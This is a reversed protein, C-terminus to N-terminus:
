RTGLFPRSLLRLSLAVHRERVSGLRDGVALDVEVRDAILAHRLGLQFSAAGREEDYVEALLWSSDGLRAEMGLGWTIGGAGSAHMRQWGLNAHVLVADGRLSWSVPAYMYWDSGHGGDHSGNVMGLALGAGWDDAQLPRLLMKMQAAVAQGHGASESVRLAGLSWEVSGSFNCAPLVWYENGARAHQVWSELQCAQADVIDADDVVMPSGAHAPALAGMAGLVVLALPFRHLLLYRTPRM